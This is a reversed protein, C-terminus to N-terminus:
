SAKGILTLLRRNDADGQLVREGKIHFIEFYANERDWCDKVPSATFKNVLIEVVFTNLERGENLQHREIYDACANPDDFLEIHQQTATSM